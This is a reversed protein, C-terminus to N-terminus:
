WGVVTVDDVKWTNTTSFRVWFAPAGSVEASLDVADRQGIYGILFTAMPVWAVGDTSVQVEVDAYLPDDVYVEHDFFLWVSAHSTASLPPTDLLEADGIWPAVNGKAHGGGSASGTTNLGCNGPSADCFGWTYGDAAADTVTWGPPIQADFTEHLLLTAGCNADAGGPTGLDGSGYPAISSCWFAPNDNLGHGPLGGSFLRLLSEIM